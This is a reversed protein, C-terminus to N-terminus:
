LMVSPLVNLVINHRGNSVILDVIIVLMVACHNLYGVLCRAHRILLM